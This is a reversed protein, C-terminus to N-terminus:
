RVALYFILTYVGAVLSSATFTLLFSGLLRFQKEPIPIPVLPGDHCPM